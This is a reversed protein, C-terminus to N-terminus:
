VSNYVRCDIFKFFDAMQQNDSIAVIALQGQGEATSGPLRKRNLHTLKLRILAAEAIVVGDVQGSDLKELRQHITGRIDVFTLDPRLMKVVNERRESSTAIKAGSQISELSDGQRFVLSDSPDVGKTLAIIALGSPLPEPLDKASHIGIDAKGLLLYQDIEKTFFDTRSINRLSTKLDYDGTTKIFVEEFLINPYYNKIEEYVEKVQVQSLPSDRAVVVIKKENSYPM